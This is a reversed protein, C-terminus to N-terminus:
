NDIMLGVMWWMSAVVGDDQNGKIRLWGEM